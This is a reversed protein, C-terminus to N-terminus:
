RLVVKQVLQGKKAQMRVFYVGKSLHRVDNTCPTLCLVKRGQLDLLEGWDAGTLRLEGRGVFASPAEPRTCGQEDVSGQQESLCVVRLSDYTGPYTGAVYAYGSQDCVVRRATGSSDPGTWTWRVNGATDLKVLASRDPGSYFEGAVYIGGNGDLCVSTAEGTDPSYTWQESGYANLCVVFFQWFTGCRGVAYISGDTGTALANIRGSGAEYTYEWRLNGDTALSYVVPHSKEGGVYLNGDDGYVICYNYLTPGYSEWLRNLSNDHCMVVGSRRQSTSGTDIQGASYVNGDPAAIVSSAHNYRYLREEYCKVDRLEGARTMSGVMYAISHDPATPTGRDGAFYLNDDTSNYVLERVLGHDTGADEDRYMWEFANSTTQSRVAFMPRTDGPATAKGATYVDDDVCTITQPFGDAYKSTWRLSGGRTLSVVYWEDSPTFGAAYLNSDPACAITYGGGPKSFWWRMDYPLGATAM